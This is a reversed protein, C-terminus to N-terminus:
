LKSIYCILSDFSIDTVSTKLDGEKFFIENNIITLFKNWCFIVTDEIDDSTINVGLKKIIDNKNKPIIKIGKPSITTYQFVKTILSLTNIYTKDSILFKNDNIFDIIKLQSM